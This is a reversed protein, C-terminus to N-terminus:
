WAMMTRRRNLLLRSIEQRDVKGRAGRPLADVFCIIEPEAYTPLHRRLSREIAPANTRKGSLGVVCLGIQNHGIEVAAAESIQPLGCAATEVEELQIRYGRIKIQRDARGDFVLEGAKDVRVFDGTDYFGAEDVEHRPKAHSGDWYGLMNSDGRVLLRSRGKGPVVKLEAYPCARGIPIEKNGTLDNATVTHFTCVNTETPGYWNEIRCEPPLMRKLQSLRKSPIREGALILARMSSQRLVQWASHSESRLLLSPVCYCVSVDSRRIFRTVAGLHLQAPEPMPVLAAGARVSAFVDFVSLDFALAAVQAVRDDPQLAVHRTAWDVFTLASRHTHVVGKPRGSSGSTYLVFAIDDPSGGHWNPPFTDAPSDSRGLTALEIRRSPFGEGQGFAIVDGPAFASSGSEEDLVSHMIQATTVIASAKADALIARLREPPSAFEIPVYAAGLLLVAHICVYAEIQKPLVIVVRDAPRVGVETLDLSCSAVLSLLERYTWRRKGDDIAVCEAYRSGAAILDLSLTKMDRM